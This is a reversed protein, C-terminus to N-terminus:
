RAGPGSPNSQAHKALRDLFWDHAEALAAADPAAPAKPNPLKRGSAGNAQPEAAPLAPPSAQKGETRLERLEHTLEQLLRMQECMLASQEQQMAAFMRAMTVFCDQFQGMVERMPAFAGVVSEAVKQPVIAAPDDATQPRPMGGKGNLILSSHSGSAARVILAVKGIEIRDGDRLPALRITRGNLLTGRRSLLDLIWAGDATNVIACHFTAIAEDLFRLPCAAHGGILTITRDLPDHGHRGPGHIELGLTSLGGEREPDPDLPEVAAPATAASAGPGNLTVDFAGMRLTQGPLVWGRDENGNDWTVGARSGLDICYPVGDIFQVLAHRKSVTPDDLCVPM